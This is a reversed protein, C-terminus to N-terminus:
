LRREPPSNNQRPRKIALKASTPNSFAGLTGPANLANHGTPCPTVGAYPGRKGPTVRPTAPWWELAGFRALAALVYWLVTFMYGACRILAYYGVHSHVTFRWLAKSIFGPHITELNREKAM